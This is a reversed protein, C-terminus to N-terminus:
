EYIIRKIAEFHIKAIKNKGEETIMLAVDKSNDMFFNETLVAPCVTHKLIYFQEEKDPDGDSCDSRLPFENGFEKKFEECLITAIHDSRTEGKTTFCEWGTGGGANAHISVLFCNKPYELECCKNVRVCRDRLSVDKQEPVLSFYTIGEQRCLKEIRKVIDRNFSWEEIIPIGIHEPTRKGLTDIGHGNDLIPTYKQTKM